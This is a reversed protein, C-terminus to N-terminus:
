AALHKIVAFSLLLNIDPLLHAPLHREGISPDLSFYRHQYVRRDRTM